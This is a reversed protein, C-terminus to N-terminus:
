EYSKLRYKMYVLSAEFVPLEVQRHRSHQSNFNTVGDRTQFCTKLGRVSGAPGEGYLESSQSLVQESVYVTHYLSEQHNDKKGFCSLM